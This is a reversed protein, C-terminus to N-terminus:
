KCSFICIYILVIMGTPLIRILFSFLFIKWIRSKVPTFSFFDGQLISEKCEQIQLIMSIYVLPPLFDVFFFMQFMQKDYGTIFKYVLNFTHIHYNCQQIQIYYTKQMRFYRNLKINRSFYVPTVPFTCGCFVYAM